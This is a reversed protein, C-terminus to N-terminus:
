TPYLFILPQLRTINGDETFLGAGDSLFSEQAAYGFSPCSVNM